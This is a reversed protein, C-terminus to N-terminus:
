VGVCMRCGKKKTEEGLIYIFNLMFVYFDSRFDLKRILVETPVYRSYLSLGGRRPERSRKIEKENEERWRFILFIEENPDRLVGCVHVVLALVLV